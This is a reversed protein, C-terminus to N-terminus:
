KKELTTKEPPRRTSGIAGARILRFLHPWGFILPHRRQRPTVELKIGKTREIKALIIDIWEDVTILFKPWRLIGRIRSKKLFWALRFRRFFRSFRGGAPEYREESVKRVWRGQAAHEELLAPIVADYYTKEAAYLKPVKSAAEVRTEGAYSLNLTALIFQERDFPESMGRLAWPVCSAVSSACCDLLRRRCSEDRAYVLSVRKCFRGLIYIDKARRSTERQFRRESVLNYKCNRREDLRLHYIHPPLFHAWLWHSFKRFVKRYGDTIVFFDPFSTQSKTVDSLMSGYMFIGVVRDGYTQLIREIYPTVDIPPPTLMREAVIDRITQADM